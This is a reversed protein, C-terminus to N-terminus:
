PGSANLDAQVPETAPQEGRLLAAQRRAAQRDADGRQRPRDPDAEIGSPGVLPVDRVAVLRCHIWTAGCHPCSLSGAATPAPVPAGDLSYFEWTVGHGDEVHQVDYDTIWVHGCGPCGFRYREVALEKLLETM